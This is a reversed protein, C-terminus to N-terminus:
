KSIHILKGLDNPDVEYAAGFGVVFRGAQPRLRFIRFDSLGKMIEVINGFRDKFQQTIAQWDEKERELLNAACDYSLRRRAFIQLTQAEDDIFLASAKGTAMLNQTHASLGSVYIYIARDEDIICPAYSAQPEGASNATGLIVSQFSDPFSQYMQALQDQSFDKM